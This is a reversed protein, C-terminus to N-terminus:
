ESPVESVSVRAFRVNKLAQKHYKDDWMKLYAARAEKRTWRITHPNIWASRKGQQIAAWAVIPVPVHRVANSASM